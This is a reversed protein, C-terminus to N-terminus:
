TKADDESLGWGVLAGLLGGSAAGLGGAFLTNALLIGAEAAVGVGPIALVGLSGILGIAGGTAGGIAASKGASEAIQSSDNSVTAGQMDGTDADKNVVSVRDMDFGSDRLKMLASEADRRDHFLGIARKVGTVM